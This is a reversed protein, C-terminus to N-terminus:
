LAYCKETTRYGLRKGHRNNLQRCNPNCDHQRPRKMSPSKPLYQRILSNTNENTSREWQHTAM